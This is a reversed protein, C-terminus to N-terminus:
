EDKRQWSRGDISTWTVEDVRTPPINTPAPTGETGYVGPWVGFEGSVTSSGGMWTWQNAGSTQAMAPLASITICFVVALLSRLWWRRCM